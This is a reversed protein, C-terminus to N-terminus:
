QHSSNLRTSKRDKLGNYMFGPTVPDLQAVQAEIAVLRSVAGVYNNDHHSVLLRESLGPIMKPDFPLPQPQYGRSSAVAASQQATACGQVALMAGATLTAVLATRRDIGTTM